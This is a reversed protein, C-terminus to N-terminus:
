SLVTYTTTGASSLPTLATTLAATSSVSMTVSGDSDGGVALTVTRLSKGTTFSKIKLFMMLRSIREPIVLGVGCAHSRVLNIQLLDLDNENIEERCLQGFGTNIGYIPKVSSKIKKELFERSDRIIKRTEPHLSLPEQKQIITQLDSLTISNHHIEVPM